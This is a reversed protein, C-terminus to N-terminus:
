QSRSRKKAMRKNPSLHLMRLHNLLLHSLIRFTSFQSNSGQSILKKKAVQTSKTEIQDKSTRHLKKKRQKSKQRRMTKM